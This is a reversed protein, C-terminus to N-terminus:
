AARSRETSNVANPVAVGVPRCIAFFPNFQAKLKQRELYRQRILEKPLPKPKEADTRDGLKYQPLKIRNNKLVQWGSIYVLRHKKLEKLFKRVSQPNSGSLHAIEQATVGGEILHMLMEAYLELPTRAKRGGVTRPAQSVTRADRLEHVSNSLRQM